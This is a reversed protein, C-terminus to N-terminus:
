SMVIYGGSKGERRYAEPEAFVFSFSADVPFHLPRCSYLGSSKTVVVTADRAFVFSWLAIWSLIPSATSTEGGTGAGSSSAAIYTVLLLLVLLVHVPLQLTIGVSSLGVFREREKLEACPWAFQFRCNPGHRWFPGNAILLSFPLLRMKDFFVLKVMCIRPSHFDFPM